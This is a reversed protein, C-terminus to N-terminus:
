INKDAGLAILREFIGRIVIQQNTSGARQSIRHAILNGNHQYILRFWFLLKKAYHVNRAESIVVM